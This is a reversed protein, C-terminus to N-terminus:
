VAKLRYIGIKNGHGSIQKSITWGCCEFDGGTFLAGWCNKHPAGIGIKSCHERVDDASIRGKKKALWQAIERITELFDRHHSEIRSLGQDRAKRAAFLDLQPNM